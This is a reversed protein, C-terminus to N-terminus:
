GERPGSEGEALADLEDEDIDQAAHLAEQARGLDADNVYIDRPGASGQRGGLSNSEWGGVGAERLRGLIIDAEIENSATTLHRSM